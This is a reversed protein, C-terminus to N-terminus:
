PKFPTHIRWEGTELNITVPTFEYNPKSPPILFDIEKRAEFEDHYIKAEEINLTFKKNDGLRRNFIATSKIYHVQRHTPKYIFGAAFM